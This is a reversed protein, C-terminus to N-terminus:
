QKLNQNNKLTRVSAVIIKLISETEIYVDRLQKKYTENFTALLELFFLTEDAEEIVIQLKYIFDKGSKARCAARYNAGVSSSSRIIQGIYVKNIITNELLMYIKAVNIANEKTKNKLEKETM